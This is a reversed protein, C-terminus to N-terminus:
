HLTISIEILNATFDTIPTLNFLFFFSLFFDAIQTLIANLNAITNVTLNVVLDATPILSEM